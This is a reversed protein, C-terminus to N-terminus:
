PTPIKEVSFVWDKDHFDEAALILKPNASNLLAQHTHKQRDPTSVIRIQEATNTHWDIRLAWTKSDPYKEPDKVLKLGAVAGASFSRPRNLLLHPEAGDPKVLDLLATLTLLPTPLKKHYDLANGFGVGNPETRITNLVTQFDTESIQDLFPSGLDRLGIGHILPHVANMASGISQINNLVTLHTEEKANKSGKFRHYEYIEHFLTVIRMNMQLEVLRRQLKPPLSKSEQYLLLLDILVEQQVSPLVAPMQSALWTWHDRTQATHDHQESM